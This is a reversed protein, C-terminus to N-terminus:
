IANGWVVDISPDAAFAAAVRELSGPLYQEDANLWSLIEGDARRWCRGIADYMGGDPESRADLDRQLALWEPTGDNSCADQVLHQLPVPGQGRVSGVARRLTWLSNRAPTAISFRM